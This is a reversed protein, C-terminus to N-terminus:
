GNSQEQQGREVLELMTTECAFRMERWTLYHKTCMAVTADGVTTNWAIPNLCGYVQCVRIKDVQLKLESSKNRKMM